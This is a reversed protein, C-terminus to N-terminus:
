RNNKTEEIEASRLNEITKEDFEINGKLKMFKQLKKYRVADKLATEIMKSRSKTEYIAEAERIIYDSINITTRMLMMEKM